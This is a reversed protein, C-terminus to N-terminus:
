FGEHAAGGTDAVVDRKIKVFYVGHREIIPMRVGSKFVIEGGGDWFTARAGRKAVGRISLTPIAVKGHQFTFHVKDGAETAHVVRVEGENVIKGGDAALYAVGKASAKSPKIPVGPFVKTADAITVTSGTGAINWSEGRKCPPLGKKSGKPLAAIVRSLEQVDVKNNMAVEAALKDVDEPTELKFTKGRKKRPAKPENVNRVHHAWARLQEEASPEELADHMNHLPIPCDGCRKGPTYAHCLKVGRRVPKFANCSPQSEEATEPASDPRPSERLAHIGPRSPRPGTSGELESDSDESDHEERLANIGPRKPKGKALWKEYEGQHDSPLGAAKLAAYEECKARGPQKPDRMHGPKGCHACGRWDPDFYSRRPSKSPPRRPRQRDTPKRRTAPSPSTTRSNPTSVAAAAALAANIVAEPVEHVYEVMWMMVPHVCPIQAGIRAELAAKYTRVYDEVQQVAAEARGNSQSEGVASNEPVGGAFEGSLKMKRLSEQICLNISSEQDCMYVMETIGCGRWLTALRDVCYADPGKVDCPIAIVARSPYLRGVLLVLLDEDRANRIFCYDAVFM